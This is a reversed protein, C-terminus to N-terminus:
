LDMVKRENNIIELADADSIENKPSALSVVVHALAAGALSPIIPNGFYESLSTSSFIVFSIVSGSIFAAMAGQWTARPWFRGFIAAICMGSMLTSIMKTIYGLIDEALIGFSFALMISFFIAWRSYRVVDEKRPVKGTFVVWVDRLLITVATLADSDGSSMTASLGSIIVLTGLLPPLIHTAMFPFAMSSNALDPNMANASLGILVPLISFLFYVIASFYFGKKVVSINKATYLRQRFSPASLIGVSISVALSIGPILGSKKFGLFSLNEPSVTARITDFGGAAPVAMIALVIFGTFLIVAQITDTWVVALYGGIIVYLGFGFATIIKATFLDLGSTWSLYFSGGLIHAGLWGISALYLIIAVAARVIKNGGYYFTIEETMTMFNHKRMDSFFLVILLIGVGGGIGYLAGGWGNVYANKVAGMSSGTGVVTAVVTGLLLGLSLQRGGMLFAAGGKQKRSVFWGVFIMLCLYSLFVPLFLQTNM